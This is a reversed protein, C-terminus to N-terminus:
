HDEDDDLFLEPWGSRLVKLLRERDKPSLVDQARFMAAIAASFEDDRIKIEHVSSSKGMLYDASCGFIDVLAEFVDNPVGRVGREYTGVADYSINRGLRKTLKDGLAKQSLGHKKRLTRINNM